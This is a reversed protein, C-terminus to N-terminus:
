KLPPTSYLRIDPLAERLRGDQRGLHLRQAEHPGHLEAGAQADQDLGDHRASLPERVGKKMTEMKRTKLTETDVKHFSYCSGGPRKWSGICVYTHTHTHTHTYTYIYIYIYHYKYMYKICMDIYVDIYTYM